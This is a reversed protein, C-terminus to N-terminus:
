KWVGFETTTSEDLCEGLFAERDGDESFLVKAVNRVQTVGIRMSRLLGIVASRAGLDIDASGKFWENYIAYIADENVKMKRKAHYGVYGGHQLELESEDRANLLIRCRLEADKASGKHYVYDERGSGNVPIYAQECIASYPCEFCEYGPRPERNGQYYADVLATVERKWALVLDMQEAPMITLSYSTGLRINNIVLNAYDALERYHAWGTLFQIKRQLDELENERQTWGSKYDMLLLERSLSDDEYGGNVVAVCDHIAELWADHSDCSTPEFDKDVCLALENIADPIPPESELFALALDKGRTVSDPPLPPEQYGRFTRGSAMLERMVSTAVAQEEEPNSAGSDRVAAIIAHATKGEAFISNDRVAHAEMFAAQKPCKKFTKLITSSARM